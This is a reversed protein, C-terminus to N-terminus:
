RDGSADTRPVLPTRDLPTVRVPVPDSRTPRVTRQPIPPSRDGQTERSFATQQVPSGTGRSPLSPLAGSTHLPDPALAPVSWRRAAAPMPYVRGDAPDTVGLASAPAWAPGADTQVRCWSVDALCGQLVWSGGPELAAVWVQDGSPAAYAGTPALVRVEPEARAHVPLFVALAWAGWKASRALNM